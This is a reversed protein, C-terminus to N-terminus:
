KEEQKAHEEKHHCEGCHRCCGEHKDETHEKHEQRWEKLKSLDKELAHAVVKRAILNAEGEEFGKEDLILRLGSIKHNIKKITWVLKEDIKDEDIGLEKLNATWKAKKEEDMGMKDKDWM